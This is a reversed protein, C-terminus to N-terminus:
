QEALPQGRRAPARMNLTKLAMGGTEAATQIIMPDTANAPMFTTM